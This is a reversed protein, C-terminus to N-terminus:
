NPYFNLIEVKINPDGIGVLEKFKNVDSLGNPGRYHYPYVIKPKFAVVANAADEVSMTFPLNMPVFAIDINKLEMMEPTVSTDGAIYIRRDETSIVYGNGRGKTHFVDASEPVNYMPVAEIEIGKQITKEGNNLVVVSGSINKPLMDSVAKPVVIVADEKSIAGLTLPDFHDSHIDSVLIINPADRGAFVEEGGVPDNYITQGNLNLVMTAHSIPNLFKANNM